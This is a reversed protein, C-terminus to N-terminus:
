RIRELSKICATLLLILKLNGAKDGAHNASILPNGSFLCFLIRLTYMDTEICFWFSLAFFFEYQICPDFKRGGAAVQAITLRADYVV